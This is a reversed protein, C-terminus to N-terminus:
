ARSRNGLWTKWFADVNQATGTVWFLFFAPCRKQLSSIWLAEAKADEVSGYEMKYFDPGTAIFHSDGYREVLREVREHPLRPDYQLAFGFAGAEMTGDILSTFNGDGYFFVKIGKDLAPEWIKRYHPVLLERFSRPPMMPGEHTAVDDHSMLVKIGSRSWAEVHKRAVDSYKDLLDQFEATNQLMLRSVFKHGLHVLLYTWLTLYIAGGVLALNGLLGQQYDHCSKYHEALEKLSYPDDDHPDYDRLYSLLEEYTEFPRKTVWLVDCSTSRALGCGKYAVEWLDTWAFSGRFADFTGYETGLSSTARPMWKGDPGRKRGEVYTYDGDLARFRKVRQEEESETGKVGALRNVFDCPQDHILLIKDTAELKM